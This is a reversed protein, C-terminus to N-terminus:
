KRHFHFDAFAERQLGIHREILNQNTTFFTDFDQRINQKADWLLDPPFWWDPYGKNAAQHEKIKAVYGAISPDDTLGTALSKEISNVKSHVGLFKADAFVTGFQEFRRIFEPMSYQNVGARFHRAHIANNSWRVANDSHSFLGINLSAKKYLNDTFINNAVSGVLHQKEKLIYDRNQLDFAAIQPSAFVNHEIAAGPCDYLDLGCMKRTIVCNRISLKDILWGLVLPASVEGLADSFCRSIAIDQGLYLNFDGPREPHWYFDRPPRVRDHQTFYLGDFRLHSKGAVVFGQHLAGESGTLM